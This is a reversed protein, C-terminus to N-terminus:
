DVHFCGSWQPLGVDAYEAVDDRYVAQDDLVLARNADNALALVVFPSVIYVGVWGYFVLAGILAVCFAVALFRKKPGTGM